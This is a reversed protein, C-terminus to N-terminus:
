FSPLVCEWVPTNFRTLKDSGKVESHGRWSVSLPVCLCFLDAVNNHRSNLSGSPHPNHCNHCSLAHGRSRGQKMQRAMQESSHLTMLPWGLTFHFVGRPSMGGREGGWGWGKVRALSVRSNSLRELNSVSSSIDLSATLRSQKSNLVRSTGFKFRSM